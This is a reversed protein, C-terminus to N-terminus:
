NPSNRFRAALTELGEVYGQGGKGVVSRFCVDAILSRRRFEERQAIDSLHVEIAPIRVASLADRIAVSTHTFGGPNLIIGDAWHRAQQILAVLEGEHNSQRCLVELGLAAGAEVCLRELDDLTGTGYVAPERSGLLNLNPGQIVLVRPSAHEDAAAEGYAAIGCLWEATASVLRAPVDDTVIARGPQRLLVCHIRGAAVKKDRTLADVIAEADLQARPVPIRAIFDDIEVAIADPLLGHQNSIRVAARLGLMVAEGHRYWRYNTATEIAHAFTHGLNLVRRPGSEREDRSVIDAKARATTEIVWHRDHASWKRLDLERAALRSWFDGGTILASKVIEAAGSVWERMPLTDLAALPALVAAPQHFSGIMNKALAHDVGTKGGIAADVMGMLTTPVAIWRVGRQYIAAAFGAIDTTVGGGLGIILEDRAFRADVLQDLMREVTRLSKSAEGPSFTLTLTEFSAAQLSATLPAAYLLAVREDSIICVRSPRTNVLEAVEGAVWDMGRPAIKIPIDGAATRLIIPTSGTM